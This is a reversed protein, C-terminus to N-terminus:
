NSANSTRCDFTKLILERLSIVKIKNDFIDGSKTEVNEIMYSCDRYDSNSSKAIAGIMNFDDEILVSSDFNVKEFTWCIIYDIINLPHNLIECHSFRNKYEIAKLKEFGFSSEDYTTGVSDIGRASFTLPRLWLERYLSDEPVFHSLITYLTGVWHEDSTEPAIFWKKELQPIGRIMFRERRELGHKTEELARIQESINEADKKKNIVDVFDKFVVNEAMASDIFDKVQSIFSSDKLVKLADNSITNRNTVLDFPGDVLFLYHSQIDNNALCVYDTALSPEYWIQSYNCTKIGQSSIFTGRQDTLKIGSKSAGQRDLNNYKELARRNGDLALIFTYKQGQHRIVKAKRAYFRASRLRSLKSALLPTEGDKDVDIFPYGQDILNITEGDWIYFNVGKINKSLEDLQQKEMPSFGHKENIVRVDGHKTCFRIYNYVYSNEVLFGNGNNVTYYKSYQEASLGKIIIITGSKFDDPSVTRIIDDVIKKTRVDQKPLVESLITTINSETSPTIDTSINLNNRPNDIRKYIWDKEDAIKSIVSIESSAFCLKSGQCKYGIAEGKLKTTKGISFFAEYNSIDKGNEPKTRLGFGDDIFILGDFEELPYYWINKAQADYSNSILERLVECPDQRNVSLESLVHTYDIKPFIKM